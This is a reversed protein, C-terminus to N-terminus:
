GETSASGTGGGAGVDFVHEPLAVRCEEAAARMADSVTRQDEMAPASLGGDRVMGALTDLGVRRVIGTALCEAGARDTLQNRLFGSAMNDIVQEETPAPPAPTCSRLVQAIATTVARVDAPDDSTFSVELYEQLAGGEDLGERFCAQEDETMDVLGKAQDIFASALDVCRLWGRAIVEAQQDSVRGTGLLQGPTEDGEFDGPEVGADHFPEVGLERLVVESVCRAQDPTIAPGGDGDALDRAFAAAYRQEEATLEREGDSCAAALLLPVLVLLALARRTRM